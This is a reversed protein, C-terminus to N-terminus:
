DDEEGEEGEAPLVISLVNTVDPKDCVITADSKAAYKLASPLPMDAVGRLLDASQLTIGDHGMVKLAKRVTTYVFTATVDCIAAVARPDIQRSDMGPQTRLFTDVTGRRLGVSAVTLLRQIAPRKAGRAHVVVTSKAAHRQPPAASASM